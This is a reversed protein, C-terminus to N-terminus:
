IEVIIPKTASKVLVFNGDMNADLDFLWGDGVFRPNRAEVGRPATYETGEKDAPEWCYIPKALQTKM